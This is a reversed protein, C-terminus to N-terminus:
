KKGGRKPKGESDRRTGSPKSDEEAQEAGEKDGEAGAEVQEASPAEGAVDAQRRAEGHSMEAAEEDGANGQAEVAAAAATAQENDASLTDIGSASVGATTDIDGFIGPVNAIRERYEEETEGEDHGRDERAKVGAKQVREVEDQVSKVVKKEADSRDDAM